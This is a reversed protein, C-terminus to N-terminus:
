ADPRDTAVEAGVAAYGALDVWSDYSRGGGYKVRALKLLAMMAAVDHPEIYRDLYATWLQAITTFSQDPDGYSAERAGAIAAAAASLVAQRVTPTAPQPATPDARTM